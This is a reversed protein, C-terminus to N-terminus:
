GVMYTVHFPLWQGSPLSPYTSSSSNTFRYRSVKVTGDTNVTLNFIAMTSGQCVELVGMGTPRYQEPLTFLTYSTTDITITSTNKAWGKLEVLKGIRRVRPEFGTSHTRFGSNFTLTQWGTDYELNTISGNLSDIQPQVDREIVKTVFTNLKMYLQECTESIIPKTSAM